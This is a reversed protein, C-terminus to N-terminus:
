CIFELLKTYVKYWTELGETGFQLQIGKFDNWKVDDILYDGSMASKDNVFDLKKCMDLGFYKEVWLRKETYSHPNLYSPRTLFWVDFYQTLLDIYFIAGDIPELELFFGERSQPYEINYFVEKCYKYHETYLCVTDDLDIRLIPKKM